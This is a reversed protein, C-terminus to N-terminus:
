RRRPRYPSCLVRPFFRGSYDAIPLAYREIIMDVEPGSPAPM